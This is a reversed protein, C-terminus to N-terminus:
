VVLGEEEAKGAGLGDFVQSEDRFGDGPDAFLSLVRIEPRELPEEVLEGVGAAIKM